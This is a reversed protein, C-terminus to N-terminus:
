LREVRFRTKVKRGTRLDEAVIEHEGSQLTAWVQNGERTIQLSDSTWRIDELGSGAIALSFRSGEKPLDPDLYAVTGPLPSVIRFPPPADNPSLEALSAVESLHNAESRWWSAYTLPLISRHSGTYDAATASEPVSGSVFWETRTREAPLKMVEPRVIKGNLPDFDRRIAGAPVAYWTSPQERHLREMVRHFVPAAGMAGSIRQLPRNSFRGVWVGVTYEPTFGVTWSDRFDTSTGTKAAARFPLDLASHQGFADARARSDSLIDNLLWTQEAQFVRQGVSQPDASPSMEPLVFRVPKWVGLRALCAYANTLELLRVEANGLTLGLGYEDATPQLSTFHLERCLTEHLRSPGGIRELLKVAPVNLSNALAHRLTVPGRFRRDFNVPQYNGTSTVYEIPTDALVTAATEGRELGLLYTFPKLTSGASRPQWAGNIQGTESGLFSRSGTLALVDGSDNDLVVVAAQLDNQEGARHRLTALEALLTSEVFQQLGSDLTTRVPQGESALAAIESVAQQRTLEIFHPAVFAGSPGPLFALPEDRAAAILDPPLAGTVELRDLVWQQRRLAGAENRWPNLRSPQNPLAALLASEAISLDALPKGFYGRAAARVGTYQNGYPLRNLYATLIEEKSASMELSRAMAMEVLKTRITRPQSPRYLKITQQTITSAGSVIKRRLITDRGARVLGLFDIGGHSFFRADEAALTAAVLSSPFEEFVAAEEVRLEDALLRRLVVGDRDLFAQGVPPGSIIGPPIPICMPVAYYLLGALLLSAMAAVGFANRWRRIFTKM